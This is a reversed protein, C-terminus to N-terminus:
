TRTWSTQREHLIKETNFVLPIVVCVTVVPITVLHMGSINLPRDHVIRGTKQFATHRPCVCTSGTKYAQAQKGRFIHLIRPM